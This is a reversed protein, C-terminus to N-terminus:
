EEVEDFSVSLSISKIEKYDKVVGSLPELWTDFPNALDVIENYTRLFTSKVDNSIGHAIHAITGTFYTGVYIENLPKYHPKPEQANKITVKTVKTRIKM